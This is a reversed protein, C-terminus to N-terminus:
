TTQKKPEPLYKCPVDNCVAKKECMECRGVSKGIGEPWDHKKRCDDCYFM